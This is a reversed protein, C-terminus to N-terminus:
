ADLRGYSSVGDGRDKLKFYLSDGYHGLIKANYLELINEYNHIIEKRSISTDVKDDKLIRYNLTDLHRKYNTLTKKPSYPKTTQISLESKDYGYRSAVVSNELPKIFDITIIAKKDGGRVKHLEVRRNKARGEETENSAIPEKEGYGQSQLRSSEIGEDIIAQRVSAAREQSLKHNYTESGKSDTYGNVSLVLDSYKQMLAVTSLIAKKSSPKLTAKNFDFYIGELTIKGTKDLEAKITDPTLVLSQIFPEEQIITLSFTRDYSELKIYNVTGNQDLKFLMNNDEDKLVTAGLKLIKATYDHAIAYRHSNKDNGSNRFNLKWFKGKHIHAKKNYYFTYENYRNYSYDDIAYGKVHAIAINKPIDVKGHRRLFLKHLKYSINNDFTISKPYDEVRVLEYSYSSVYPSFKLWYENDAKSFHAYNNKNMQSANLELAQTMFDRVAKQYTANEFKSYKFDQKWTHGYIYKNGEGKIYVYFKDYEQQKLKSTKTVTPYTLNFPLPESAILLLPSRLLLMLLTKITDGKLRVHLV